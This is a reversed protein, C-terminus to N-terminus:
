KQHNCFMLLCMVFTDRANIDSLRFTICDGSKLMLTACLEDLPTTVGDIEEAGAHIEEIEKLLISKKQTGVKISFTDLSRNLSASCTKLQGTQTMVSLKKGKVMEKVFEKVVAKAQHRQEKSAVESAVASVGDLDPNTSCVSSASEQDSGRTRAPKDFQPLETPQSLFIDPDPAAGGGPGGGAAAAAPVAASLPSGAPAVSGPAAAHPHVINDSCCAAGM